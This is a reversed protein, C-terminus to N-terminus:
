KGQESDLILASFRLQLSTIDRDDFTALKKAELNVGNPKLSDSVHIGLEEGRPTVDSPPATQSKTSSSKELTKWVPSAHTQFTAHFYASVVRAIHASRKLNDDPTQDLPWNFDKLLAQWRGADWAVEELVSLYAFTAFYLGMAWGYTNTSKGPSRFRKFLSELKRLIQQELREVRGECCAHIQQHLLRPLPVTGSFRTLTNVDHSHLVLQTMGLKDNPPDADADGSDSVMHWLVHYQFFTYSWLVLCWQLLESVEHIECTRQYHFASAITRRFIAPGPFASKELHDILFPIQDYVYTDLANSPIDDTSQLGYATHELDQWGTPNKWWLDVVPVKPVYEHIALSVPNGFGHWVKITRRTGPKWLAICGSYEDVWAKALGKGQYIKLDRLKDRCCLERPIGDKFCKICPIGNGCTAKLYKCLICSGGAERTAIYSRKQKPNLPTSRKGPVRSVRGRSALDLNIFKRFDDQSEDHRKVEGVSSAPLLTRKSQNYRSQDTRRHKSRIQKSVSQNQISKVPGPSVTPLAESVYKRPGTAPNTTASRAHLSPPRDRDGDQEEASLTRSRTRNTSPSVTSNLPPETVSPQEEAVEPPTERWNIYRKWWDEDSAM